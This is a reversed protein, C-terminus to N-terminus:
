GLENKLLKLIDDDYKIEILRINNDCCYDRVFRGM